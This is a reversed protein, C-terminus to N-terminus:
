FKRTCNVLAQVQRKESRQRQLVRQCLLFEKRRTLSPQLFFVCSELVLVIVRLISANTAWTSLPPHYENKSM